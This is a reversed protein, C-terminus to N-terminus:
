AVGKTINPHAADVSAPQGDQLLWLRFPAVAVVRGATGVEAQLEDRTFSRRISTLGDERVFSGRFALGLLSFGAHSLRSRVLDSHLVRGRSLRRCGALFSLLEDPPLHHLVHNSVVVDAPPVRGLADSVWGQFGHVSSGRWRERAFALARGDPDIGVAETAIGDRVAWGHLRATVDGGGCGVDVLRATGYREAGSQLAPRVHQVYARRWASVLRNLTGFQEYTRKLVSADCNPDDMQEQLSWARAHFGSTHGNSGGM